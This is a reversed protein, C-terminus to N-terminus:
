YRRVCRFGIPCEVHKISQDTECFGPVANSRFASEPPFIPTRPSIHAPNISTYGYCWGGRKVRWKEALPGTPNHLPSHRYYDNAYWDNCWEWVNGAMDHLGWANPKKQGVPYTTKSAVNWFDSNNLNDGWYFKTTTGARCAYEWEAETPLRYGNKSLDTKLNELGNCFRADKHRVISSYSYVPDFGDQRSRGNCYLVANYWTVNEVPLDTGSPFRSPNENMLQMYVGQTVPTTDMYFPSLSVEHIVDDLLSGCLGSIKDRLSGRKVAGMKFTGGSIHVMKMEVVRM